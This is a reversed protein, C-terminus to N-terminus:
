TQHTCVCSQVGVESAASLLWPSGKVSFHVEFPFEGIHKSVGAEVKTIQSTLVQGEAKSTQLLSWLITCARIVYM